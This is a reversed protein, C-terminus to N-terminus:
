EYNELEDHILLTVIGADNQFSQNESQTLNDAFGIWILITLLFSIILIAWSLRHIKQM